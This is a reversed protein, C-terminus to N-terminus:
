VIKRMLISRNRGHARTWGLRISAVTCINVGCQRGSKHRLTTFTPSAATCHPDLMSPRGHVLCYRNHHAHQATSPRCPATPQTRAHITKTLMGFDTLSVSSYVYMIGCVVTGAFFTHLGDNTIRGDTGCTFRSHGSRPVFIVFPAVFMHDLFYHDFVAIPAALMTGILATSLVTSAFSALM